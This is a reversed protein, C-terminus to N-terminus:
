DLFQDPIACLAAYVGLCVGGVLGLFPPAAPFLARTLFPGAVAFSGVVIYPYPHRAVERRLAKLWINPQISM